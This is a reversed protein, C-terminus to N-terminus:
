LVEPVRQEALSRAGIAIRGRAPEDAAGIRALWALNVLDPIPRADDAGATGDRLRKRLGGTGVLHEGDYRATPLHARLLDLSQERWSAFPEEPGRDAATGAATTGDQWAQRMAALALDYDGHEDLAKLTADIVAVRTNAAPHTPRDLQAAVPDFREFVCTLGYAPGLVYCAYVDAFIEHFWAWHRSDGEQARAALDELPHVTRGGQVITLAPGVFHGHEHAVVPLEWFSKSPFRVRIVRSFRTYSEATGLVTFSEWRVPAQRTIEDLLADALRCYGDDLGADRVAAGEVLALAEEFVEDLEAQLRHLRPWLQTAATADVAESLKQVEIRHLNFETALRIEVRERLAAGIALTSEQAADIQQILADVRSRLLASSCDPSITRSM